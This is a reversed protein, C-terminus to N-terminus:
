RPSQEVLLPYPNIAEGDWYRRRDSPMRMIQFHLHPVNEPANGTTGVFGLTDGRLIAMGQTLGDRYHDLHAYYYVVRELPDVAYITIGGLKNSSLRLIRGDDAALVPTGRPALIDIARHHRGADRGADFSDTFHAPDAGAVPIVLHRLRLYTVEDFDAAAASAEPDSSPIIVPLPAPAAVVIPRKACAGLAALSALLSLLRHPRM